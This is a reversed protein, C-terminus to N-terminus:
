GGAKALDVTVFASQLIYSSQAMIGRNDSNRTKLTNVKGSTAGLDFKATHIGMVNIPDNTV